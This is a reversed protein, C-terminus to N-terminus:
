TSIRVPQASTPESAAAPTEPVPAPSGQPDAFLGGALERNISILVDLMEPQPSSIVNATHQDVFRALTLMNVRVEQPVPCEPDLLDAQLITWLRWNFRAAALIEDRDGSAQSDKLRLAVQMLAWAETARPNGPQPTMKYNKSLDSRSM